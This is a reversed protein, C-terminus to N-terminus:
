KLPENDSILIRNVTFSYLNTLKDFDFESDPDNFVTSLARTNRDNESLSYVYAKNPIEIITKSSTLRSNLRISDQWDLKLKEELDLRLM